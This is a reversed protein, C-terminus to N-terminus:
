KLLFKALRLEEVTKSIKTRLHCYIIDDPFKFSHFAGKLKEVDKAFKYAIGTKHAADLFIHSKQAIRPHTAICGLEVLTGPSEILAIIVDYHRMMALEQYPISANSGKSSPDYIDEPFHATDGDKSLWQKIEIRKKAIKGVKSKPRAIAEKPDPGFILINLKIQALAVALYNTAM